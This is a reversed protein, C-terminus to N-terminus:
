IWPDDEPPSDDEAWARVWVEFETELDSGSKALDELRDLGMLFELFGAAAEHVDESSLDLDVALEEVTPRDRFNEAEEGMRQRADADM